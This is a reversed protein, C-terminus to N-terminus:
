DLPNQKLLADTLIRDSKFVVRGLFEIGYNKAGAVSDIQVKHARFDSLVYEVVGLLVSQVYARKFLSKSIFEM